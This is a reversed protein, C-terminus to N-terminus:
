VHARGIELLSNCLCLHSSPLPLLRSSICSRRRVNRMVETIAGAAHQCSLRPSYPRLTHPARRVARIITTNLTAANLPATHTQFHKINCCRLHTLVAQCRSCDAGVILLDRQTEHVICGQESEWECVCLGAITPLLLTHAPRSQSPGARARM